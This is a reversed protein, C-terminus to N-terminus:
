ILLLLAQLLLDLPAPLLESFDDPGHRLGPHLQLAHHEARLRLLAPAHEPVALSGLKKNPRLVPGAYAPFVAM